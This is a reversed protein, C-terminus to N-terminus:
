RSRYPHRLFCCPIALCLVLATPEPVVAISGPALTGYQQQWIGLDGDNVLDDHNFDGDAVSLTGTQGLGLQWDLLDRGDVKGDDNADADATLDVVLLNVNDIHIAGVGNNPQDFLFVLRAEVAGEPATATLTHELWEDHNTASDGITVSASSSLYDASDFAGGFVSYYDFKMTVVNGGALADQSRIYASATASLSEGSEVSIGQTAGSFNQPGNFQGFIKLSHSGDLVAESQASVNPITNGFLTWGNLSGGADDFSGNTLPTPTVDRQFIRVYDILMEQPWASSSNPQYQQGGLFDGGVALNLVTEMPATQNSLFGGLQNDTITHYNVDDVFFKLENADWEVAYIHFDNHYNGATPGSYTEEDFTYQHGQVNPGYHFASSVLNPQHGRNELIDIEGQTPWGYINTDPLLWIAPWTGQTGPLNARVEWRGYQQTYTSEVKGSTYQKGGNPTDDATLVLNGGSVTARDPRYAQRENNFPTNWWIPDWKTTDLQSGNFEDGWTQTWGPPAAITLSPAVLPMLLAVWLVVYRQWSIQSNSLAPNM